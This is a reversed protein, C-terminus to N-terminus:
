SAKPNKRCDDKHRPWDTRQCVKSCYFPGITCAGCVFMSLSPTEELYCGACVRSLKRGKLKCEAALAEPLVIGNVVVSDQRKQSRMTGLPPNPHMRLPGYISSRTSTYYFALGQRISGDEDKQLAPSLQLEFDLASKMARYIRLERQLTEQMFVDMSAQELLQEM